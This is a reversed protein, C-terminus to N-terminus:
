QIKEFKFDFRYRLLELSPVIAVTSRCSKDFDAAILIGRVETEPEENKLDGMYGLIQGISERKALGRKLELVVLNGDDDEALIDIFGSDVSRETGGDVVSLGRQIQGIELRLAAQLHREIEFQKGEKKEKILEGALEIAAGATLEHSDPNEKFDRYNRIASRCNNLVNYPNGDIELNTPNPVEAKSDTLSYRLSSLLNEFKDNEFHDDLDGYSDEVRKACSMSTSASSAAYRDGLWVRFSDAKV